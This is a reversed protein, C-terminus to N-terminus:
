CRAVGTSSSYMRSAPISETAAAIRAVEATIEQMGRGRTRVELTTQRGM